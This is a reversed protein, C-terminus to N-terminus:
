AEKAKEGQRSLTELHAAPPPCIWLCIDSKRLVFEKWKWYKRLERSKFLVFYPFPVCWNGPTSMKKKLYAEEYREIILLLKFFSNCSNSQHQRGYSFCLDFKSLDIRVEHTIISYLTGQNFYSQFWWLCLWNIKKKEKKKHRSMIQLVSHFTM